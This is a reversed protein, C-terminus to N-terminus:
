PTHREQFGKMFVNCFYCPVQIGSIPFLSLPQNCGWTKNVGLCHCNTTGM